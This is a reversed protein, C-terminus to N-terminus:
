AKLVLSPTPTPPYPPTTGQGVLVLDQALTTANIGNPALNNQSDWDPSLSCHMETVIQTNALAEWTITGYMAWTAIVVGLASVDIIAVDHGGVIQLNGTINNWVFGNGNANDYWASPLNIGINQAPGFVEACVQVENQNTNDVSVFGNIKHKKAGCPIGHQQAYQLVDVIVCGQDGPGCINAYWKLAQADSSLAPTGLENGTWAGIRHLLSAIVCDGQTTNGYAERIAAIAKTLWDTTVPPPATDKSKDYHASFKPIVRIKGGKYIQVKFRGADFTRIPLIAGLKRTIAM